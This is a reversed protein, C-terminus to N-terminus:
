LTSHADPDEDAMLSRATTFLKQYGAIYTKTSFIQEAASRARKGMARAEAPYDFMWRIKDALSVEDGPPVLFGTVGDEIMDPIGGIHSGVVPTGTAMAEFVVRGLGESISPLVFVRARSMWEALKAQPMQPLFRVRQTLGLQTVQKKLDSTYARNEDHGVIVLRAESVEKAVQAFAVILHHVGKRPILAGTYLIDHCTRDKNTGAEFFVELDTWTPFQVVPRKAIQNELQQHTSSSISRFLDAHKLAVSATCRMVFRYLRPCVIRRQMFLSEEFDGHTEVILVVKRGVCGAIRKVFTAVFGEYPSQAVLVQVGHRGVLWFALPAGLVFMEAYRLLAFPLKPLLYFKAHETFRRPRLDGSFGIVFLEGLSKMAQFKKESTADLPRNYRAGGLFCVKNRM